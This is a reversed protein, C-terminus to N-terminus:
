KVAVFIVLHTEPAPISGAAVVLGMVTAIGSVKVPIRIVRRKLMFLPKRAKNTCLYPNQALNLCFCGVQKAM